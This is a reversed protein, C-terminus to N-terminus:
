GNRLEKKLIEFNYGIYEFLRLKQGILEKEENKLYWLILWGCPVEDASKGRWRTFELKDIGINIIDDQDLPFSIDTMGNSIILLDSSLYEIGFNHYNIVNSSMSKDSHIYVFSQCEAEIVTHIRKGM